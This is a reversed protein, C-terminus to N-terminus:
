DEVPRRKFAPPPAFEPEIEAEPADRSKRRVGRSALLMEYGFATLAGIAVLIAGGFLTFLTGAMNIGALAGIFLVLVSACTLIGGFTALVVAIDLVRTRKRQYILELM